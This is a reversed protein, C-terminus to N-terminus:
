DHQPMLGEDGLVSMARMMCPMVDRVFLDMDLHCRGGLYCMEEGYPAALKNEAM